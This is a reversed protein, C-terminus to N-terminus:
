FKWSREKHKWWGRINIRREGIAGLIVVGGEGGESQELAWRPPPHIAWKTFWQREIVAQTAKGQSSYLLWVGRQSLWSTIAKRGLGRRQSRGVPKMWRTRFHRKNRKEQLHCCDALDEPKDLLKCGEPALASARLSSISSAAFLTSIQLTDKEGAQIIAGSLQRYM